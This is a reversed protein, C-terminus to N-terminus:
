SSTPDAFISQSLGSIRQPQEVLGPGNVFSLVLSFIFLLLALIYFFDLLSIFILTTAM